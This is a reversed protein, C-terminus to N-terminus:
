LVQVSLRWREPAEALRVLNGRCSLRQGHLVIELQSESQGVLEFSGADWRTVQGRDGSIPGEYDLYAPRHDPLADVVQSQGPQPPLPLAWTRLSPGVELMLDWHAARDAAPPTVHHLIVFRPM